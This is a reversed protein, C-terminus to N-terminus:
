VRNLRRIHRVRFGNQSGMICVLAASIAAVIAGQDEESSVMEDQDDPIPVPVPAQGAFAPAEERISKQIKKQGINDTLRTLMKILGILVTLGFFVTLLGIVTVVLGFLLTDM